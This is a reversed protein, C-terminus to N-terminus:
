PAYSYFRRQSKISVRAMVKIYSLKGSVELDFSLKEKIVPNHILWNKGKCESIAITDVNEEDNFGEEYFAKIYYTVDDEKIPKFAVKYQNSNILFLKSLIHSSDNKM